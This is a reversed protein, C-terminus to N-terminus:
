ARGGDRGRRFRMKALTVLESLFTLFIPCTVHSRPREIDTSFGYAQIKCSVRATLFGLAVTRADRRIYDSNQLRKKTDHMMVPIM